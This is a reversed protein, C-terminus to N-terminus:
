LQAVARTMAIATSYSSTALTLKGYTNPSKADIGFFRFAAAGLARTIAIGNGDIEIEQIIKPFALDGFMDGSPVDVVFASDPGELTITHPGTSMNATTIATILDALNSVTM